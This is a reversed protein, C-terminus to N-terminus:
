RSEQAFLSLLLLQELLRPLQFHMSQGQNSNQKRDAQEQTADGAAGHGDHSSYQKRSKTQTAVKKTFYLFYNALLGEGTATSRRRSNEFSDRHQQCHGKHQRWSTKQDVFRPCCMMVGLLWCYVWSHHNQLRQNLEGAIYKHIGGYAEGDGLRWSGRAATGGALHFFLTTLFHVYGNWM